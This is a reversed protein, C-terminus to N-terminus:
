APSTGKQPQRYDRLLAAIRRAADPVTLAAMAAGMSQRAPLDRILDLVMGALREPMENDPLLRAAGRQVLFAANAHQLHGRL